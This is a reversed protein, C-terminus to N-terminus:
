VPHKSAAQRSHCLGHGLESPLEEDPEAMVVEQGKVEAAVPIHDESVDAVEVLVRPVELDLIGAQEPTPLAGERLNSGPWPTQEVKGGWGQLIPRRQSGPGTVGAEMVGPGLVSRSIFGLMARKPDEEKSGADQEGYDKRRTGVKDGLM